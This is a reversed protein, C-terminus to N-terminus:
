RSAPLLRVDLVEGPVFPGDPALSVHVPRGYVPRNPSPWLREPLLEVAPGVATIESRLVAPAVGLRVLGERRLEVLRGVLEDPALASEVFVVAESAQDRTVVLVPSGALVAQGVGVLIATVQGDIPSTLTLAERELELEEIRRAQVEVAAQLARLDAAPVIARRGTPALAQYASLRSTAAELERRTGDLESRTREARAQDREKRLTLDEVDSQPGAEEAALQIARRLRVDTRDVEIARTAADVELELVQLALETQDIVHRRHDDEWQLRQDYLESQLEAQALTRATDAAAAAIEVRAMLELTRAQATRLRAELPGAELLALLEGRRVQSQPLALMAGLTGSTAASVEYKEPPVWGRHNVAPPRHALMWSVGGAAGLWVLLVLPGQLLDQLRQRIPIHIKRSM